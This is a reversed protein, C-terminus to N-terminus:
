DGLEVFLDDCQELTIQKIFDASSSRGEIIYEGPALAGEYHQAGPALQVQINFNNIFIDMPVGDVGSTANVITLDGTNETLCLDEVVPDTVCSSIFLVTLTLFGLIINRM